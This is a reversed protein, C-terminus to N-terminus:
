ARSVELFEYGARKAQSVNNTRNPQVIRALREDHERALWLADEKFTGPKCPIVTGDPKVVRLLTM